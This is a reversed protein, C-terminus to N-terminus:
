GRLWDDRNLAFLGARAGPKKNERVGPPMGARPPRNSFAEGPHYVRMVEDRGSSM